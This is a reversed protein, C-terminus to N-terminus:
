QFNLLVDAAAKAAFNRLESGHDDCFPKKPVAHSGRWGEDTPSMVCTETVECHGLSFSHGIEHITAMMAAPQNMLGTGNNVAVAIATKEEIGFKIETPTLSTVLIREVRTLGGLRHGELGGAADTVTRKTFLVTHSEENMIHLRSLPLESGDSRIRM